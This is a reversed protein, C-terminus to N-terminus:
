GASDNEEFYPANSELADALKQYLDFVPTGIILAARLPDQIGNVTSAKNVFSEYERYRDLFDTVLVGTVLNGAVTQVEIRNAIDTQALLFTVPFTKQRRDRLASQSYKEMEQTHYLNEAIQWACACMQDLFDAKLAILTDHHHIQWSAALSDRSHALQRQQLWFGAVLWALTVSNLMAGFYEGYDAAQQESVRFAIAIAWIVLVITGCAAIVAANNSDKEGSM